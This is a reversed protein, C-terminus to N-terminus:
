RVVASTPSSVDYVTGVVGGALLGSLIASKRASGDPGGWIVTRGETLELEIQTRSPASVGLLITRVAPSLAAIVELGALTARDNPGAQEVQLAVVGEPLASVQAFLVGSRDVLWTAGSVDVAAVASRETVQVVLTSPWDRSVTASEIQSINELATEAAALDVRALPTGEPISLVDEVTESSLLQAGRVEIADVELASSYFVLWGLSGALVLLAAVVSLWRGRTM